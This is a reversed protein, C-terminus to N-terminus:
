PRNRVPCERVRHAAEVILYYADGNVHAKAFELVAEALDENSLDLPVPRPPHEGESHNGGCHCPCEPCDWLATYGHPCLSM